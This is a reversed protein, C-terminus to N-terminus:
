EKGSLLNKNAHINGIVIISNDLITDCNLNLEIHSYEYRGKLRLGARDEDWIVELCYKKKNIIVECIDGQFIKNKKIDTLKSYIELDNSSIPSSYLFYSKKSIPDIMNFFIDSFWYQNISEDWGRFEYNNM